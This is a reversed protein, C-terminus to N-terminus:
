HASAQRGPDLGEPSEPFRVAVMDVLGERDPLQHTLVVVAEQGLRATEALAQQQIRQPRQELSM